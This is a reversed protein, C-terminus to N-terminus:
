TPLEGFSEDNPVCFSAHMQVFRWEGDKQHAVATVRVLLGGGDPLVLRGQDAMWGVSGEVYAEPDGAKLPLGGGMAEMQEKFVETVRQGAWWEQPDTGIARVDADRSVHRELFEVDGNALADYFRLFLDRLEESREM